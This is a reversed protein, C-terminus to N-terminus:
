GQWLGVHNGNPDKFVGMWGSGPIEMKPLIISGGHKEVEALTADMDDTSVYVMLSDIKYPVPGTEAGAAGAKVFGGGTNNGTDFTTYNFQDDTRMPWGFVDAYFASAAKPNDAPIEVHVVRHNAM